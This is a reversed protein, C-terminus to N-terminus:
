RRVKLLEKMDEAPMYTRDCLIDSEANLVSYLILHGLNSAGVEYTEPYSLCFRVAASAWPKHVANLESGLYRAPKTLSPSPSFAFGFM